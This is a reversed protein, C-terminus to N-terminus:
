NELLLMEFVLCYKINLKGPTSPKGQPEAPLCDAQLAPSRPELEMVVHSPLHMIWGTANYQVPVLSLCEMKRWHHLQFFIVM